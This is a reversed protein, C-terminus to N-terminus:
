SDSECPLMALLERSERLLKRLTRREEIAEATYLGHRYAGNAEGKPAGGRAGHFRCVTWGKVAPAQCPKRSRKSTASCRPAKQFCYERNMLIGQM